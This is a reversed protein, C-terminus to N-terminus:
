SGADLLHLVTSRYGLLAQRLRETAPEASADSPPATHERVAAELASRREELRRSFLEATRGLLEGAQLVADRPDDVFSATVQQWAGRLADADAGLLPGTLAADVGAVAGSGSRAASAASAAPPAPPAEAGTRPAPVRATAPDPSAAGARELGAGGETSEPARAPAEASAADAAPDAARHPTDDARADEAAQARHNGSLPLHEPFRDRWSRAGRGTGDGDRADGDAARPYEPAAEQVPAEQAPAEAAIRDSEFADDPM